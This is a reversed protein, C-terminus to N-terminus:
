ANREDSTYPCKVCAFTRTMTNYSREPWGCHPCDADIAIRIGDGALSPDGAKETLEAIMSM